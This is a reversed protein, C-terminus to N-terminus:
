HGVSISGLHTDVLLTHSHATQVPWLGSVEPHLLVPRAKPM